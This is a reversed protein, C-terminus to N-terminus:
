LSILKEFIKNSATSYCNPLLYKIVQNSSYNQSGNVEIKNILLDRTYVSSTICFLYILILLRM